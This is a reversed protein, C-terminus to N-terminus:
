FFRMGLSVPVFWTRAADAHMAAARAELFIEQRGFEIDAGGGVNWGLRTSWGSSSAARYWGGRPDVNEMGRGPKSVTALGKYSSAMLGGLGYFRWGAFQMPTMKIDAGVNFLLPTTTGVLSAMAGQERTLQAIDAKVRVGLFQNLPEWGAAAGAHFGNTYLRDANGSPITMGTYFAAYVPGNVVPLPAVPLMLTDVRVVTHPVRVVDRTRVFVTDLRRLYVTDLRTVFVTDVRPLAVEGKSVQVRRESKTIRRTTDQAAVTGAFLAVGLACAIVNRISM